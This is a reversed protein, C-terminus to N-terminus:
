FPQRVLAKTQTAIGDITYTFAAHGADAFAFTGSGIPAIGFQAANYTRGFPTGTTAYIVGTLTTAGTWTGNPIFYFVPKGDLGYTYWIAVLTDYHQNLTLGWGDQATGGWWLDSYDLHSPTVAPGFPQRTLPLVVNQGTTTVYSLTGNGSDKFQLSLTGTQSLTAPPSYNNFPAGVTAYMPGSFITHSADWAGGPMVLWSGRGNADYVYWTAFLIDNHQIISIGTGNYAQGFWWLDTYNVAAALAAQVAGQANVIGAGCIGPGCTSGAPFPKATSTLIARVQTANLGPAVALMLSVVGSVMPASFSTGNYIGVADGAPTTKGSDGLSYIGDLQPYQGGPASLTVTAGFNSYATRTGTSTTAGVSIIGSCNAPVHNAVDDSENGAAIVIARTAGHALAADFVSQEAADCKSVSTDGLSMNIVQAPTLNVPAGPVELGAAWAVGDLIDSFMGGCKGLVRVPLIKASWDLGATWAHDNGNAGLVASVATGHWSSNNIDCQQNKFPGDKDVQSLWDGPDTADPDRGDGDNATLSDTIFDYGQIFRGALGAHPRYGTDVVAVVVNASGTTIDWAAFANIGAPGSGLYTQMGVFPDDPVFAPKLRRDAQAYEVDPHTALEAAIRRAEDLPVAHDLAVIHAALAMPRVYALPTGKDAALAAVRSQPTLARRTTADDRFKVILQQTLSVSASASAAGSIAVPTAVSEAESASAAPLTSSVLAIAAAVAIRLGRLRSSGSRSM